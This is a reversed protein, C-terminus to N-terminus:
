VAMIMVFPRTAPPGSHPSFFPLSRIQYYALFSQRFFVKLAKFPKKERHGFTGYDNQFISTCNKKTIFFLPFIFVFILPLRKLTFRARISNKGFSNSCYFFISSSSCKRFWSFFIAGLKSLLYLCFRDYPSHSRFYINLLSSIFITIIIIPFNAETGTNGSGLRVM